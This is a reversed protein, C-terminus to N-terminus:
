RLYKRSKEAYDNLKQEVLYYISNKPYGKEKDYTGAPMGTLIEIGEDITSVPYIHFMGNKVAEVIETNLSINDVNQKPIMAGQFGTLGNHKCIDFFGELKENVGGIPQIEGKQNVSGTVAIGQKVPIGSLSSLIAYLETSSASDGDVGNYLQEFCISATLSLPAEQAFKEGLYAALIYVGKSHTTGSMAVEREINIVGATGIFTNATIRVPKGFTADGTNIVTLGNIKGVEMGDISIMVTGDKIMDKLGDDYKGFRYLRNKVTTKVHELDVLKKGLQEAVFSSEIIIDTIDVQMATLKNKDGACRSSYEVIEKVAERKFPLLSNKDVVNAVYEATKLVNEDTRPISDDFDAKVKFLKKFDADLNSLQTYISESGILIVQMNLPIIEPKLSVIAGTTPIDRSSDITLEGNRLVRKFAEWLTMNSILDRANVILYGGNAKHLIGSKLMTHDTRLSGMQNEYELKGFLDFYNPNTSIVVPACKINENNVLLNVRYKEWPEQVPRMIMPNQTNDIKKPKFKEVNKVVDNQVNYLFNQIKLNRKHKLKIDNINRSVIYTAINSQWENIKLTCDKDLLEIQKMIEVTELQIKPSKEKFVSKTKEDLQNFEQENLINGNHIPSFYIGTETTKIKFGEAMTYVDFDQMIKAKKEEYSATVVKKEKELDDSNFSKELEVKISSIFKNMDEKFIRGQGSELEVAFPENPTDFNYIYCIDKPAAQERALRNIISLVYSTKGMGVNGCVYLNFGHQKIQMATKVATLARAQGIIGGYTELESTTKFKFINLPCDNTLQTYKLEKIKRM